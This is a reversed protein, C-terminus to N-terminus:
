LEKKLEYVEFVRKQEAENLLQKTRLEYEKIKREIYDSNM